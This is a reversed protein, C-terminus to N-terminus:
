RSRSGKWLIGLLGCLFVVCVSPEPIPVISGTLVVSASDSNLRLEGLGVLLDSRLIPSSPFTGTYHTGYMFDGFGGIPIRVPVGTGLSFGLTGSPTAIVPSFRDNEYPFVVKVEFRGVSGDVTLSGLGGYFWIGGPQEERLDFNFTGQAQSSGVTSLFLALVVM